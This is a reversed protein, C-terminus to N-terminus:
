GLKGHGDFVLVSGAYGRGDRKGLTGREIRNEDQFVPIGVGVSFDGERVKWPAGEDLHARRIGIQVGVRAEGQGISLMAHIEDQQGLRKVDFGVGIVRQRQSEDLIRNEHGIQSLPSRGRTGPMSAGKLDFAALLKEDVGGRFPIGGAPHAEEDIVAHVRVDREIDDPKVGQFVREDLPDSQVIAPASRQWLSGAEFGPM